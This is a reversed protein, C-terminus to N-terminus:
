PSDTCGLCPFSSRLNNLHSGALSTSVHQWCHPASFLKHGMEWSSASAGVAFTPLHPSICCAWPGPAGPYGLLLACYLASGRSKCVTFTKAASVALFSAQPWLGYLSLQRGSPARCFLVVCLGAGAELHQLDWM